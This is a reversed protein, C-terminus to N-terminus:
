LHPTDRTGAPPQWSFVDDGVSANVHLERLTFTNWNGEPTEMALRQLEGRRDDTSRVYLRLRTFPEGSARPRLEICSADAMASAGACAGVVYREDIRATGVLLGFARTVVDTTGRTVQGPWHDDGAEYFLYDAGNALAIRSPSGEYDLRVHGPRALRLRGRSTQTRAYAATWADQQFSADLSTLGDLWRQAWSAVTSADSADQAVAHAVLVLLTVIAISTRM